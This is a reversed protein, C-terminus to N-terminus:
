RRPRRSFTPHEGCGPRRPCRRSTPQRPLTVVRDRRQLRPSCRGWGSGRNVEHEVLSLLQHFRDMSGRWTSSQTRKTGSGSDGHIRRNGARERKKIEFCSGRFDVATTSVRSKLIPHFNTNSERPPPLKGHNNVRLVQEQRQLWM